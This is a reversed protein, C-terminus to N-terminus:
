VVALYALCNRLVYTRLARLVDASTIDTNPSFLSLPLSFFIVYHCLYLFGVHIPLRLIYLHISDRGLIFPRMLEM